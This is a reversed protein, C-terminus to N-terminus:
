PFMIFGSIGSAANISGGPAIILPMTGSTSNTYIPYGSSNSEWYTGVTLTVMAYGYYATYNTVGTTKIPINTQGIVPTFTGTINNDSGTIGGYVTLSSLQPDIANGIVVNGISDVSFAIRSSALQMLTILSVTNIGPILTLNTGGYTSGDIITADSPVSNTTAWNRFFTVNTTQAMLVLTGAACVLFIFLKKM